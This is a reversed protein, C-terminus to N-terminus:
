FDLTDFVIAGRYDQSKGTLEEFVFGFHLNITANKFEEPETHVSLMQNWDLLSVETKLTHVSGPLNNRPRSSPFLRTRHM